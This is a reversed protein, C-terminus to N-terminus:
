REAWGLVSVPYQWSDWLLREHRVIRQGFGSRDLLFGWAKDSLRWYDGTEYDHLPFMWPTSFWFRGGPRLVRHAEEVMRYIDDVHEMVERALVCEFTGDRWPLSRGRGNWTPALDVIDRRGLPVNLDASTYAIRASALAMQLDTEPGPGLELVAAPEDRTARTLCWDVAERFHADVPARHLQRDELWRRWDM